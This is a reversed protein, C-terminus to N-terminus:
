KKNLREFGHQKLIEECEKANYDQSIQMLCRKYEDITDKPIDHIYYQLITPKNLWCVTASIQTHPYVRCIQANYPVNHKKLFALVVKEKTIPPTRIMKYFNYLAEQLGHQHLGLRTEFIQLEIELTLKKKITTAVNIHPVVEFDAGDWPDVDDCLDENVSCQLTKDWVFGKEVLMKACELMDCPFDKLLWCGTGNLDLANEGLYMTLNIEGTYYVRQKDWLIKPVIRCIVHRPLFQSAIGEIAFVFQNCVATDTYAYPSFDVPNALTQKIMTEINIAM